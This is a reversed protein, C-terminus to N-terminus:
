SLPKGAMMSRLLQYGNLALRPLKTMADAPNSHGPLHITICHSSLEKAVLYDLDTTTARENKIFSVVPKNDCYVRVDIVPQPRIQSLCWLLLERIYIADRICMAYARCEATDIGAFRRRQLNSSWYVLSPQKGENRITILCGARAGIKNASRSEQSADTYADIIIRGHWDVGSLVLDPSENLCSELRRRGEGVVVSDPMRSQVALDPNTTAALWGLQGKVTPANEETVRKPLQTIVKEKYGKASQLKLHWGKDDQFLTCGIGCYPVQSNKSFWARTGIPSKDNLRKYTENLWGKPGIRQMDDGHLTAWTPQGKSQGVFLCYALHSQQMQCREQIAPAITEYWIVPSSVLGEWGVKPQMYPHGVEAIWCAPTKVCCPRQAQWTARAVQPDGHLFARTFDDIEAGYDLGYDLAGLYLSLILRLVPHSLGPTYLEEKDFDTTGHFQTVVPRANPIPPEGLKSKMKCVFRLQLMQANPPPESIGEFVDLTQWEQLARALAVRWAELGAFTHCDLDVDDFSMPSHAAFSRKTLGLSTVSLQAPEVLESAPPIDRGWEAGKISGVCATKWNAKQFMELPLLCRFSELPIPDCHTKLLSKTNNPGDVITVGPTVLFPQGILTPGKYGDVVCLTLSEGLFPITINGLVQHDTNGAFDQVITWPSPELSYKDLLANFPSTVSVEAKTDVDFGDLDM